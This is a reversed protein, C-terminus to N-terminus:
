TTLVATVNTTLATDRTASTAFEWYQVNAVDNHKFVILYRVTNQSDQVIAGERYNNAATGDESHQVGQPETLDIKGWSLLDAILVPQGSTATNPVPLHTM